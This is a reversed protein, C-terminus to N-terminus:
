ALLHEMAESPDSFLMLADDTAVMRGYHTSMGHQISYADIEYGLAESVGDYPITLRDRARIDLGLSRRRGAYGCLRHQHVRDPRRGPAHVRV